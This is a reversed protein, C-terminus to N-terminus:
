FVVEVVECGSLAEAAAKSEEKVRVVSEGELAMEVRVARGSQALWVEM